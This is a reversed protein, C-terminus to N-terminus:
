KGKDSSVGYPCKTTGADNIDTVYNNHSPFVAAELGGGVTLM